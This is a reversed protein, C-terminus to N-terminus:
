FSISRKLSRFIDGTGDWPTLLKKNEAFHCKICFNGGSEYDANDFVYLDIYIIIYTHRNKIMKEIAGGM